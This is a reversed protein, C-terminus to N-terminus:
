DLFKMWPIVDGFSTHFSFPDIKMYLCYVVFYAMHLCFALTLCGITVLIGILLGPILFLASIASLIIAFLGGVVVHPNMNVIKM